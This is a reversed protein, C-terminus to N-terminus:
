DEIEIIPHSFYQPDIVEYSKAGIARVHRVISEVTHKVSQHVRWMGTSSNGRLKYSVANRSAHVTIIAHIHPFLKKIGRRLDNLDEPSLRAQKIQKLIFKVRRQAETM